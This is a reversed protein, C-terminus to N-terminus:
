FTCFAAESAFPVEVKVATERLRGDSGIAYEIVQGGTMCCVLLFKGDPSIACGRPWKEAVPQHQIAKLSGDKQNVKFVTIVNPGSTLNYIYKGNGDIVVGQQAFVEDQMEVHDPLVSYTGMAQLLGDERYTFADFEPSNENNHYFWPKEPHFVCHRPLKGPTQQYIHSPRILKGKEPDIRYMRVTDNGKDCVAYLNGSPSRVTCHPHPHTQRTEPGNGMHKSVDLLKGITGDENVSFLEVTSDAWELRPYYNGGADEEIQVVSAHSSHNAVALFRGSPDLSMHCPSPCWTEACSMQTLRGTDPDIRFVFIRGGGGYLEPQQTSEALAYLLGRNEDFYAFDFLVESKVTEIFQLEGSQTNLAYASIGFGDCTKQFYWSSIYVYTRKSM